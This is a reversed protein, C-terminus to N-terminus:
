AQGVHLRRRSSGQGGGCEGLGAHGVQAGQQQVLVGLAGLEEVRGLLAQHEVAGFDM